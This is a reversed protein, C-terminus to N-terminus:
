PVHWTGLLLHMFPLWVNINEGEREGKRGRERFILLYFRLFIFISNSCYCKFDLGSKSYVLNNFTVKPRRFSTGVCPFTSHPSRFLKLSQSQCQAELMAPWTLPAPQLTRGQREPSAAGNRRNNVTGNWRRSPQPDTEVLLFCLSAQSASSMEQNHRYLLSSGNQM